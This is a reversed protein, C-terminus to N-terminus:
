SRIPWKRQQFIEVLRGRIRTSEETPNALAKALYPAAADGPQAAMAEIAAHRVGEDFDVLFRQAAEVVRESRREALSILLNRKKEPKFEQEVQEAALLDLLLGVAAEPGEIREVLRVAHHFNPNEAAWRRAVVAGRPGHEVLLDFVIDKEKRDKLGHELQLAFRACMAFLAEESGNQALWHASAERDEAQADRNAVRRAHRKLQGAPGGLLFDFFAM